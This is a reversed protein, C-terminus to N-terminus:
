WALELIERVDEVTKIPRPNVKVPKYGLSRKALEDLNERKIGVARLSGPQDLGAVLKAVLDSASQDPAGMAESLARQRDGNVKANWRLVAPLMVCSTHGHAVGFTSGLAYGIGHSAGSGAGATSAAIAQWMGFQAELRPKLDKPNAKIAPLARSLLKLGQLSLPETAPNALTSCYSEVAHDVSRIGTCFLLWDPTDLTAEPDLIVTRPAFLRHGFSQKSSTRTDTVGAAPTFESASLTTSVALMRIPDAPIVVPASKSGDLGARYPEMADITELGLWLCLQMTKTADIVSGGGVAVLLDAKAARADNAGAIIDERPSHASIATYTGVHRDGLAREIRQLPGTKLKALSRTSTVFVRSAGYRAAESVVAEAAPRGFIIREVANITFHGTTLGAHADSM